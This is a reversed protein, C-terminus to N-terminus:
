NGTPFEETGHYSCQAKGGVPGIAYVGDTSPCEFLNNTYQHDIYPIIDDRTAYTGDPSSSETAWQEVADDILALKFFCAAEPTYRAVVRFYMPIPASVSNSASNIPLFPNDTRWEDNLDSKWEVQYYANSVSNTWTLSGSQEIFVKFEEAASTTALIILTLISVISRMPYKRKYEFTVHSSRPIYVNPVISQANQVERKM